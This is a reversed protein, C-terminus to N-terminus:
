KEKTNQVQKKTPHKTKCFSKIKKMVIDCLNRHGLRKQQDIIKGM